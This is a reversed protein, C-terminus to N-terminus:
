KVKKEDVMKQLKDALATFGRQRAFNAATDNDVDVMTLDAGAEILIDVVPSLGEAAAFMVPTFHEKTDIDNVVAGNELLLRVTAPYPGTAAFMLATRGESNRLTIDAGADLLAKVADTHGNFAALMLLSNGFDDAQDVPMGKDLAATVAALNGNLAADVVATVEEATPPPLPEAKKCGTILACLFVLILLPKTYM